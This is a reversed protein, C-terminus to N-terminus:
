FLIIYHRQGGRVVRYMSNHTVPIDEAGFVGIGPSFGLHFANGRVYSPKIASVAGTQVYSLAFRPDFSEPFGLQGMHIFQVYSVRAWGTLYIVVIHM